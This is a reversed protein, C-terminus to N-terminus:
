ATQGARRIPLPIRPLVFRRKEVSAGLLYSELQAMRIVNKVAPQIGQIVLTGGSSEVAKRLRILAGLGTSDMFSVASIDLVVRADSAPVSGREGLIASTATWISNANAATIEGRWFLTFGGTTTQHRVCARDEENRAELWSRAAAADRALDFFEWLGAFKLAREVAPSPSMLLLSAGSSLLARQLRLLRAVGTADIKRVHSADLVCHTQPPVHGGPLEATSSRAASSFVEPLRAFKWTGQLIFNESVAHGNRTGPLHDLGFQKVFETSFVWLDKAYRGALRRPEQMLRYIWETGSSRMWQPARKLHEALFDVTGGVGVAVPVGVERYHMAIWKEQKPCGFSVLLLDPKAEQIRRRIEDHDMELLRNFPPSYWEIQINPHKKRVREVARQGSENTGGLLFVRYGKAEAVQLLEPVLDSGAVREPLTNGLLRSAWILPTGDCLVLDASVLIRRLEIDSRAQVLFDVNATVLYHSKRSAIMSEIRQIAQPLRVKDLPIGLIAVAEHQGNLEIAPTSM